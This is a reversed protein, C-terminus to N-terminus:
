KSKQASKNGNNGKHMKTSDPKVGKHGRLSDKPAKDKRLSDKPANHHKTSDKPAKKDKNHNKTSDNKAPKAKKQTNETTTAGSTGDTAFISTSSGFALAVALVLIFKKM